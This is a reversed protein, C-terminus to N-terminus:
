YCSWSDTALWKEEERRADRGRPFGHTSKEGGGVIQSGVFAGCMCTLRVRWSKDGVM